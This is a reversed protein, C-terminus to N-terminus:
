GVRGFTQRLIRLSNESLKCEASVTCVVEKYRSRRSKNTDNNLHMAFREVDEDTAQVIEVAEFYFLAPHLFWNVRLVGAERALDTEMKNNLVAVVPGSWEIFKQSQHCDRCGYYTISDILSLSVRHAQCPVLCYYCLLNPAQNALRDTTDRAIERLLQITIPRLSNNGRIIALKAKKGLLPVARGGAALIHPYYDAMSALMTFITRLYLWDPELGYQKYSVQHGGPTGYFKGVPPHHPYTLIFFGVAMEVPIPPSLVAEKNRVLVIRTYVAPRKGYGKEKVVELKLQHNKYTGTIRPFGNSSKDPHFNLQNFQALAKWNDTLKKEGQASVFLSAGIFILAALACGSILTGLIIGDIEM